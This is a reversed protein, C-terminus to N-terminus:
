CIEWLSVSSCISNRNVMYVSCEKIIIPSHASTSIGLEKWKHKWYQLTKNDAKPSAHNYLNM